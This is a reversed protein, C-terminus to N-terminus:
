KIDVKDVQSLDEVRVFGEIFKPTGEETYFGKIVKVIPRSDGKKKKVKDGFSQQKAM